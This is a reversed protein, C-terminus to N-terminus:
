HGGVPAGGGGGRGAKLAKEDMHYFLLMILVGIAALSAPALTAVKRINGLVAETQQPARADFGIASLLGSAQAAILGAIKFVLGYLSMIHSTSDKGDRQRAFDAVDSFIPVCLSRGIGVGMDALCVCLLGLIPMSTVGGAFYAGVMAAGAFGFALTFAAKKNGLAKVLPVSLFTGILMTIVIAWSFNANMAPSSLVYLFYYSIVVKYLTETSFCLFSGFSAAVLKPNAGFVKITTM